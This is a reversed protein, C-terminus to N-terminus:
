KQITGLPCRAMALGRSVAKDDFVFMRPVEKVAYPDVIRVTKDKKKKKEGKPKTEYVTCEILEGAMAKEHLSCKVKANSRGM